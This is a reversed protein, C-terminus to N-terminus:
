EILQDTKNQKKKRLNYTILQNKMTLIMVIM